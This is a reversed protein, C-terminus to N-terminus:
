RGLIRRCEYACVRVCVCTNKWKKYNMIHISGRCRMPENTHGEHKADSVCVICMLNRTRRTREERVDCRVSRM